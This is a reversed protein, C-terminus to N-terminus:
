DHCRALFVNQSRSLSVILLSTKLKENLPFGKVDNHSVREESFVKDKNKIVAVRQHPILELPAM